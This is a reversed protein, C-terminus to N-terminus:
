VVCWTMDGVCILACQHLLFAYQVCCVLLVIVYVVVCMVCSVVVHMDCACVCLVVVCVVCGRM